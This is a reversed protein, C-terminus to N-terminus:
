RKAPPMGRTRELALRLTVETAVVPWPSRVDAAIPTPEVSALHLRRHLADLALADARCAGAVGAVESGPLPDGVEPDGVRALRRRRMSPSRATPRGVTLIARRMAVTRSTVCQVSRRSLSAGHAVFDGVGGEAALVTLAVAVLDLQAQVDERAHEGLRPEIGVPARDPQLDLEVQGLLGAVRRQRVRVHELQDGVVVELGLERLEVDLDVDRRALELARHEGLELLGDPAVEVVGLLLGCFARACMIIM